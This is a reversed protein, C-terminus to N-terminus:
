RVEIWTILYEGPCVTDKRWAISIYYDLEPPCVRKSLVDETRTILKWETTYREVVSVVSKCPDTVINEWQKTCSCLWITVTIILLWLYSKARKHAARDTMSLTQILYKKQNMKQIM